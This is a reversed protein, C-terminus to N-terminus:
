RSVTWVFHVVSRNSASGRSHEYLLRIERDCNRIEITRLSLVNAPHRTGCVAAIKQPGLSRYETFKDFFRRDDYGRNNTLSNDDICTNYNYGDVVSFIHLSGCFSLSVFVTGYTHNSM